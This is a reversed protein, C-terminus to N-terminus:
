CIINICAWAEGRTCNGKPCCARYCEFFDNDYVRGGAMVVDGESARRDAPEQRYQQPALSRLGTEAGFGPLNM